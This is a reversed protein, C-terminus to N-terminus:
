PLSADDPVIRLTTRAYPQLSIVTSTTRTDAFVYGPMTTSLRLANIHYRSPNEVHLTLGTIDDAYVSWRVANIHQLRTTIDRLSAVWVDGAEAVAGVVTQWTRLQENTVVEETHAWFDIMGDRGRIKELMDLAGAQREVTLYYDPCAMIREHGPVPRCTADDASVIHYQPLRPNWATRTVATYGAAELAQWTDYRMGASSSWPFALAQAPAVGQTAAIENWAAIDARWEAPSALGGYLHSFTHSQIDHGANRVPQILDGFYWAPHTHTDGYPDRAFWPLQVWTDSQWGNAQSAWGFTPNGMYRTQTRNERLFNYGNVFYTAPYRYPAFLELTNTLGERMRMGRLEPDLNALPDISRSHVLGGMATEWDYSFSVAATYPSPWPHVIIGTPPLSALQAGVLSTRVTIQDLYLRDDSAPEVHIDLTTATEPARDVQTYHSWPARDDAGGWRRVGQWDAHHEAVVGQANRWIWRTRIATASPSDALARLSVCYRQGARVPMDVLQLSSAIGLMHVSAGGAVSFEGRRVGPAGAQWGAPFTTTMQDLARDDRITQQWPNQCARERSILWFSAIGWVSVAIIISAFLYPKHM